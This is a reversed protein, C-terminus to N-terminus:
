IFYKVDARVRDCYIEDPQALIGAIFTRVEEETKLNPPEIWDKHRRMIHKVAKDPVRELFM